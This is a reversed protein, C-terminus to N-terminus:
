FVFEIFAKLTVDDAADTVGFAAGFNLWLEPGLNVEVAPVLYHAHDSPIMHAVEGMNGYGELGLYFWNNLKRYLAAAYEFEVGEGVDPGGLVKEFKPNLRLDWNEMDKELIIRAELADKIEGIYSERPAYYEFYISADFFREGKDFLKFRSVVARTQAYQLDEGKRQKFDGYMGIAWDNTIGYEVELTHRQAEEDYDSQAVYDVWYVLEIENQKPQGTDYVKFQPSLQEASVSTSVVAAAISAAIGSVARHASM